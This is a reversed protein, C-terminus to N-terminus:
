VGPPLPPTHAASREAAERTDWQWAVRERMHEPIWKVRFNSLGAYAGYKEVVRGGKSMGSLLPRENDGNCRLVWVLAGIRLTLDSVVNAVIGYKDDM